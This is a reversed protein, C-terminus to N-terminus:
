KKEASTSYTKLALELDQVRHSDKVKDLSDRSVALSGDLIRKLNNLNRQWRAIVSPPVNGMGTPVFRRSAIQATVGRAALQRQLQPIHGAGYVVVIVIRGAGAAADLCNEVIRRNREHWGGMALDSVTNEGVVQEFQHDAIAVGKTHLFDFLSPDTQSQRQRAADETLAELKDQVEKPQMEEARRQWAHTIRWDTAAFRAHLAPAIEALFAAEPPFYGEMPGQYAEPTIEGCILDPHLAEVENGLDALSYHNEVQFHLDHATGLLFVEPNSTTATPRTQALLSCSLLPLWFVVALKKM